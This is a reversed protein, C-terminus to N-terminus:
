TLCLGHNLHEGVASTVWFHHEILNYRGKEGPSIGAGLVKLSGSLCGNGTAAKEARGASQSAASPLRVHGDLTLMIARRM